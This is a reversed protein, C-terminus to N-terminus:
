QISIRGVGADIKIDVRNSAAAYDASEYGGESRLFRSPDIELAALAEEIRIRAAVGQPVRIELSAAGADIDVTCEGAQAPLLIRTSSAGTDLDLRNVKLDTLDLEARSAGSKIVLSLPVERTLAINWDLNPKWTFPLFVPPMKLEAELKDGTLRTNYELGSGFTGSLLKGAEAGSRLKLGGAGHEMHIAALRAAQLDIAVAEGAARAPALVVGVLVWIGLLILALPWFYDVPDGVGPLRLGLEKMLLLGGFLILISGWFLEGRRM